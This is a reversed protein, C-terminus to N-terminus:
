LKESWRLKTENKGLNEEVQIHFIKGAGELCNFFYEKKSTRMKM